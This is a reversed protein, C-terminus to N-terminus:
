RFLQPDMRSLWIHVCAINWCPHSLLAFDPRNPNRHRLVFQLFDFVRNYDDMWSSLKKDRPGM